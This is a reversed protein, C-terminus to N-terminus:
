IIFIGKWAKIPSKSKEKPKRKSNSVSRHTRSNSGSNLIVSAPRPQM